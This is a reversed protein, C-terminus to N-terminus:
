PESVTALPSKRTSNLRRGAPSAGAAYPPSADRSNRPPPNDCSLFQRARVKPESERNQQFHWAAARHM